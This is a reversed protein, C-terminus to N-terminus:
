CYKETLFGRIWSSRHQIANKHYPCDELEKKSKFAIRGEEAIKPVLDALIIGAPTCTPCLEIGDGTYWGNWGYKPVNYHEETRKLEYGIIYDEKKGCKCCTIKLYSKTVQKRCLRRM